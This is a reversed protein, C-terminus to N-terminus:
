GIKINGKWNQNAIQLTFKWVSHPLVRLFPRGLRIPVEIYAQLHEIGIVDLTEVEFCVPSNESANHVSNDRLKIM